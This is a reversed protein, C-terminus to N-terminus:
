VVNKKKHQITLILRLDYWRMFMVEIKFFTMIIVIWMNLSQYSYVDCIVLSKYVLSFRLYWRRRWFDWLYSLEPFTKYSASYIDGRGVFFMFTMLFHRVRRVCFLMWRCCMIKKSQTSYVCRFRAGGNVPFAEKDFSSVTLKRLRSSLLNECQRRHLSTISPLVCDQIM